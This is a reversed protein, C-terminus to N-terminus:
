FECSGVKLKKRELDVGSENEEKTVRVGYSHKYAKRGIEGLGRSRSRGKRRQGSTKSEAAGIRNTMLQFSCIFQIIGDLQKMYNAKYNMYGTLRLMVSKDKM